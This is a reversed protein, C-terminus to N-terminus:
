NPDDFTVVASNGAGSAVNADDQIRTELWQIVKMVTAPDPIQMTRGSITVTTRYAGTFLANRYAALIETDTFTQISSTDFSM